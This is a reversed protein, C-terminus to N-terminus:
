GRREGAEGAEGMTEDGVPEKGSESGGVAEASGVGGGVGSGM